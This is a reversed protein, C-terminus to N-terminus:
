RREKTRKAEELFLAKAQRLDSGSASINYGNRCYRVEYRDAYKLVRVVFGSSELEERIHPPLDNIDEIWISFDLEASIPKEEQKVGHKGIYEAAKGFESIVEKMGQTIIEQAASLDELVKSVM